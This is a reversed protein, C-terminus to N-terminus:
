FLMRVCVPHQKRTLFTNKVSKIRIQPNEDLLFPSCIALIYQNERAIRVYFFYKGEAKEGPFCPSV